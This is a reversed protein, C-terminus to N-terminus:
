VLRAQAADQGDISYYPFVIDVQAGTITTNSDNSKNKVRITARHDKVIRHVIALGLGTGQAKTTHYPEFIKALSETSFGAGNDSIRLLVGQPSDQSSVTMAAAGTNAVNQTAADIANGLLNHLVQRLQNADALITDHLANLQVMIKATNNSYLTLVETLLANLNLPELQAQPLRAYQRFEDVMNKLATVQTVITGTGRKLLEADTGTLKDALKAMLREASLQIPTLPNKIEHALRRAVESWAQAKQALMVDSVDDFVLLVGDGDAQALQAGRLLLTQIEGSPRSIELQTQWQTQTDRDTVAQWVAEPLQAAASANLTSASMGLITQASPNISRLSQQADVVLVGTSLSTLVQALYTNSQTLAGRATGLENLMRNFSRTLVALDDNGTPERLLSFDGGAVAQTGRALRLLPATMTDALVFGTAVAALVALLMTITLTAGYIKRLGSRGIALSQYDKSGQAVTQAWQAIQPSVAQSLQVYTHLITPEVGEASKPLQVAARLNLRETANNGDSNPISQIQFFVGNRALNKLDEDMPTDTLLGKNSHSGTSALVKSSLPNAKDIEFFLVDVDGFQGRIRQAEAGLSADRNVTIAATRAKQTLTQLQAKIATRSLELGANLASDVKVNFWSDISQSLFLASVCYVLVGPLIGLLAFSSAFKLTLQAGFRAKKLRLLLRGLLALVLILLCVIMGVNLWLLVNYHQTWARNNGAAAALSFVAVLVGLVAVILAVRGLWQSHLLWHWLHKPVILLKPLFTPLRM